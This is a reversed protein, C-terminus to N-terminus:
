TRLKYKRAIDDWDRCRERKKRSPKVYAEEELPKSCYKKALAEFTLQTPKSPM